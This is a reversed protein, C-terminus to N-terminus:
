EPTHVLTDLLNLIIRLDGQNTLKSTMLLSRLQTKLHLQDLPLELSMEEIHHKCELAHIFGMQQVLRADKLWSYVPNDDDLKQPILEPSGSNFMNVAIEFLCWSREFYDKECLCLCPSKAYLQDVNVLSKTIGKQQDICLWDFFFYDFKDKNEPSNLFNRIEDLKRNNPDPHQITEWRHSIMLVRSPNVQEPSLLVANILKWDNKSNLESVPILAYDSHELYLEKIKPLLEEKESPDNASAGCLM